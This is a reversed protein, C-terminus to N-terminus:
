PDEMVTAGLSGLRLAGAELMRAAASWPDAEGSAVTEVLAEGSRAGISEAALRRYAAALAAELESIRRLRRGAELGGGSELHARHAVVAELVDGIGDGSVAVTQIIPPDWDRHGGLQLMTRLDAVTDKVGSRDAKNVVFVDGIELIGAKAAQIGDGWGPTVVVLTTDAAETVEVEDQGVGVTEILLWPFGAADLLTLAKPAAASLGGMHGRSAMSRIYVEPDSVHDQMRVRDGLVAGGTFPSTPDVALVAVGDGRERLAGILGDTLTSKGSGPAGTIGVRYAGGASPYALSLLLAADARDDEVISIVRALARRDGDLAASVLLAPDAPM